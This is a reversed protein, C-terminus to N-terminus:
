EWGVERFDADGGYLALGGAPALSRPLSVTTGGVTVDTSEDGAEQTWEAEDAVGVSGYTDWTVVGGIYAFRSITGDSSLFALEIDGSAEDYGVVTGVSATTPWDFRLRERDVTGKIRAASSAESFGYARDDGEPIWDLWVPSLPEQDQPVFDLLDATIEDTSGLAAELADLDTAPIAGSAVDARWGAFAEARDPDSALLRVLEQSLPRSASGGSFVDELDPAGADLETWAQAAMDEWSLLPRVRLQLCDGDWHHRSLAEALGEVYWSPLGSVGGARDQYQHVLEHVMLVRSYWATPQRYLYARGGSPDYYGGAGELGSIGDAALAEEFGAADAAIVVSLPGDVETDFFNALGRWSLEALLGLTIAEDEDFGSVHLEYHATSVAWGEGDDEIEVDPSDCVPDEDVWVPGSAGSDGTEASDAPATSDDTKPEGACALLLALIM